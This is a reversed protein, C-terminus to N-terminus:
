MDKRYNTQACDSFFRLELAASNQLDNFYVDPQGPRNLTCYYKGVSASGYSFGLLTQLQTLQAKIITDLNNKFKDYDDAIEVCTVYGILVRKLFSKRPVMEVRIGGATPPYLAIADDNLPILQWGDPIGDYVTVRYNGSPHLSQKIVNKNVIEDFQTEELFRKMHVNLKTRIDENSNFPQNRPM